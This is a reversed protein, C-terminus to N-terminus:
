ARLDQLGRALFFVALVGLMTTVVVHEHSVIFTRGRGLISGSV